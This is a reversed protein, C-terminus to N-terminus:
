FEYCKGPFEQCLLSPDDVVKVSNINFMFLLNTLTIDSKFSHFSLRCQSQM